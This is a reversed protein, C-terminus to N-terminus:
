IKNNIYFYPSDAWKEWFRRCQIPRYQHIAPSIDIALLFSYEHNVFCCNLRIDAVKYTLNNACVEPIPEGRSNPELSHSRTAL